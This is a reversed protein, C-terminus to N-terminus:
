PNEQDSFDIEDGETWDGWDAQLVGFRDECEEYLSEMSEFLWDEEPGEAFDILYVYLEYERGYGTDCAIVRCGNKRCYAKQFRVM